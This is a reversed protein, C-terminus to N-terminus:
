LGEHLFGGAGFGRGAGLGVSWDLGSAFCLSPSLLRAFDTRPSAVMRPVCLPVILLGGGLRSCDFCRCVYVAAVM